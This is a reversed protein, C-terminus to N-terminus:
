VPRCQNRRVMNQMKNAIDLTIASTSGGAGWTIDCFAPQHVVMRDMRDYLNEVGEDTKPPFFEFSFVVNGGELGKNIKDIVKMAAPRSDTYIQGEGAVSVM